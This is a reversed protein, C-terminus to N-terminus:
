QHSQFGKRLNGIGPRRHSSIQPKQQQRKRQGTQRQLAPNGIIVFIPTKKQLEVRELNEQTFLSPQKAEALEFTDVLCLGEFPQYHGTLDYYEHELNMSAIYYPLLM